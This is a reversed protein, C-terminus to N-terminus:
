IAASGPKITSASLGFDGCTGGSPTSDPAFAADDKRVSAGSQLMLETGDNVLIAFAIKDGEPVAAVQTFGLRDVWFALCAEVEEVILVPTIKM